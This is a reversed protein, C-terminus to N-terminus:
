QEGTNLAGHVIMLPASGSGIKIYGILIGDASRVTEQAPNVAAETNADGVENSCAGLAFLLALIIIPTAKTTTIMITRRYTIQNFKRM